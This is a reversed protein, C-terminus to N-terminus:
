YYHYKRKNNAYKETMNIMIPMSCSVEEMLEIEQGSDKMDLEQPMVLCVMDVRVEM